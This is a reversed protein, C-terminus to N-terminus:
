CKQILMLSARMGSAPMTSYVLRLGQELRAPSLM